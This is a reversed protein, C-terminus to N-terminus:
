LDIKVLAYGETDVASLFKGVVVIGDTAIKGDDGAYAADGVDPLGGGAGRDTLDFDNVFIIGKTLIPVAQNPLVADMEALKRPNYILYEGNEDVERVDKLIVGFPAPVTNYTPTATVEAVVDFRASVANAVSSLNTPLQSVGGDTNKWTYVPTVLTGKTAPAQGSYSYLNIVDHESYNRFPKLNPM